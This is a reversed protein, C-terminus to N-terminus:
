PNLFKPQPPSNVLLVHWIGEKGDGNTDGPRKDGSYYYLPWEGYAFQLQDYARVFQNIRFDPEENLTKMNIGKDNLFPPWEKVCEDHCTSVRFTDNSNYYLTMCNKDVLYYGDKGTANNVLKSTYPALACPDSDTIVNDNGPNWKKDYMVYAALGIVVLIVLLSWTIKKNLSEEM